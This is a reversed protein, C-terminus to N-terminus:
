QITSSLGHPTEEKGVLCFFLMTSYLYTNLQKSIWRPICFQNSVLLHICILNAAARSFILAHLGTEKQRWSETAQLAMQRLRLSEELSLLQRRLHSGTSRFWSKLSANKFFVSMKLSWKWLILCKLYQIKLEAISFTLKRQLASMEGKFSKQFDLKGEITGIIKCQYKQAPRKHSWEGWAKTIDSVYQSYYKKQNRRKLLWDPSQCDHLFLTM